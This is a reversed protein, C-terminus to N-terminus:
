DFHNKDKTIGHSVTNALKMSATNMECIFPHKENCFDDALCLFTSTTFAINFTVCEERETQNAIFFRPSFYRKSRNEKRKSQRTKSTPEKPLNYGAYLTPDCWENSRYTLQIGAPDM